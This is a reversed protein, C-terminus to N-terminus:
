VYEDVSADSADGSRLASAELDELRLGNETKRKSKKQQDEAGEHQHERETRSKQELESCVFVM